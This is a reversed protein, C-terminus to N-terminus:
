LTYFGDCDCEKCKAIKNTSFDPFHSNVSHECRKCKFVTDLLSDSGYTVFKCNNCAWKKLDSAINDTLEWDIKDCNPCKTNTKM